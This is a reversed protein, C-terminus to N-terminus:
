MSTMRVVRWGRAEDDGFHVGQGGARFGAEHGKAMEEVECVEGAGEGGGAGLDLDVGMDVVEVVHGRGRGGDLYGGCGRQVVGGQDVFMDEGVRAVPGEGEGLVQVVCVGGGRGRCLWNEDRQLLREEFEGEGIVVAVEHGLKAPEDTKALVRAADSGGHQVGHGLFVVQFQRVRAFIGDEWSCEVSRVEAGAGVGGCGSPRGVGDLGGVVEGFRHGEGEGHHVDRGAVQLVKGPEGFGVM